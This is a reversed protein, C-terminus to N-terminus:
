SISPKRVRLWAAQFWIGAAILVLYLVTEAPPNWPLSQVVLTSGVVSSLAILAWDFFIYLLIAGVVGGLIQIVPVPTFGMLVALHAGITGGAAFGGLVIALKQFFLALLVGALGFLM